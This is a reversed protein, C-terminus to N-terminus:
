RTLTVFGTMPKDIAGTTEVIYFYVGDAVAKGQKDTGAWKFTADTSEFMLLGWRNYIKITFSDFKYVGLEGPDLPTFFDNVGDGNPSFVNPLQMDVPCADPSIDFTLIRPCVANLFSVTLTYIGTDNVMIEPTAAGTNWLYSGVTDSALKIFTEGAPCTSDSYTVTAPQEVEVAMTDNKICGGPATVKVAYLTSAQPTVSTSASTAVTASNETWLYNYGAGTPTSLTISQNICITTDNGADITPYPKIQVTKTANASGCQNIANITISTSPLVNPFTIDIENNATDVITGNNSGWSYYTNSSFPVQYSNTDGQCVISPGTVSVSPPGLVVITHEPSWQGTCGYNTEQIKFTLTGAGGLNVYLSNSNAGSPSVFPNGGNIGSCIWKYTSMDFYSYPEFMLMVTEGVCFTDKQPIWPYPLNFDYPAGYDYSSILQPTSRIAGITVRILTGLANDPTTSSDAVIRMYNMGTPIGAISLSDKCPIHVNLVTDEGAQVSGLIGNSGIQGFHMSSLLQTSFTNGNQYVATDNFANIDIPSSSNLGNPNVACDEICYNLDVKYNTTIDCKSICFPGWASGQVSPNSSVVRVYYNCGPSVNPVQGSVSGPNSGLNPDYTDSNIYTGVVTPTSPFQGLSDSLEATYTNFTFVGTSTFPIDIASGVCVANTDFTVVPQQTVIVNPCDLITFCASAIGTITPEPSTRSIRIKYCTSPVAANPLQITVIGSTQPYNITTVWSSFSSPFNGASNSLEISYTGDCLTDSLHYYVTLYTGQCVLAPSVSDVTVTIPNMSNYSAVINIDDISFSQNSPPTGATNEWRFGFRLNGVNSFAADTIDEYQWKYKNSYVSQGVPTWPGGNASYYVKGYAAGGGECLYFFSFHVSDMGLTCIGDTMYAFRDSASAADYNSNTVGSVADYIHLYNSYPAYAITGGYTSDQSSTNAYLPVGSYMNNVVWQNNGSNSSLEATNLTFSSGGSQFDETFLQIDQGKIISTFVFLFALFYLTSTRIGLMHM